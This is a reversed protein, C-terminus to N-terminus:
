RQIGELPLWLKWTPAASRGVYNVKVQGHGRDCGLPPDRAGNWALWRSLPPAVTAVAVAVASQQQRWGGGPILM